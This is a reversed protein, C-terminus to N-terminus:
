RTGEAKMKGARWQGETKRLYGAVLREEEQTVTREMWERVEKASANGGAKGLM